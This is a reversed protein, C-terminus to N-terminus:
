WLKSTEFDLILTDSSKTEESSERRAKCIHLDNGTDRTHRFENKKFPCWHWLYIFGSMLHTFGCKRWYSSLTPSLVSIWEPNKFPFYPHLLLSYPSLYIIVFAQDIYIFNPCSSGSHCVHCNPHYGARERFSPSQPAIMEPSRMELFPTWTGSFPVGSNDSNCM